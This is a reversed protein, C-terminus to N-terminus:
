QYRNWRGPEGGPRKREPVLYVGIMSLCLFFAM